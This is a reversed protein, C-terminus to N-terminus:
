TDDDKSSKKSQISPDRESNKALMDDGHRKFQVEKALRDDGRKKMQVDDVEGSKALMDDGHRKALMDDGIRKALMDDGHRKFQVEKALRDDGRKKMQVDDIEGSKALMDDGHRKALMDDGHRKFQVEKALRDDGRKKMEVDDVEGSKALMDDGHRKALMDDGIRKNKVSSIILSGSSMVLSAVLMIMTIINLDDKGNDTKTPDLPYDDNVDPVGDGDDDLDANDGIGDQDTDIWENPNNPFADITDNVGDGDTDYPTQSGSYIVPGVRSICDGIAKFGESSETYFKFTHTSVNLGNLELSFEVCDLYNMDAPNVKNMLYSTGDLVLTVNVDLNESSQYIVTFSFLTNLNGYTPFVKGNILTPVITEWALFENSNYFVIDNDGDKDLDVTLVNQNWTAPVMNGQLTKSHWTGSSNQWVMVNGAADVTLIDNVGNLDVDDITIGYIPILMNVLNEFTSWNEVWPSGDNFWVSLNGEGTGTILDLYGNSDLDCSNLSYVPLTPGPMGPDGINYILWPGALGVNQIATLNGEVTHIGVIDPDNDNDLDVLKIGYEGINNSIPIEPWAGSWPTGDNELLKLMSGSGGVVIDVDGDLDMDAVELSACPSGISGLNYYQGSTNTDWHDVWVSGTNKWIVIQGDTGGSIIDQDGDGDLDAVRINEIASGGTGTGINFFAWSGWPKGDNKLIFVAGNDSGHILDFDGDLDLDATAISKQYLVTSNLTVPDNEKFTYSNIVDGLGRTLKIEKDNEHLDGIFSLTFVVLFFTFFLIVHKKFVNKIKM